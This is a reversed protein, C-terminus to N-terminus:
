RYLCKGMSHEGIYNGNDVVIKGSKITMVPWGQLNKGEYISFDSRTSLETAKVQKLINMDVIVVDADSGPLLTGKQPYLGFIEAPKKTVKGILQELRLGRKVIGENLLVSLHTQLVSYGPVATWVDEDIKKESKTMTVNDTGISDVVDDEIAKWLADVDESDRFPPEMKIANSNSSHKTVSLYPSTTEINIYKNYPKINRLRNIASKSSIHVFYVPVQSKEALYSLRIVAEEEAIDPHTDTWDQVTADKGKTDRVIKNARQVLYRNEAHACVICNKNSKKIEDFVDLIFGDDVDPVIGPIGNMYIKFSTVGLDDICDTIERRQEESAIVLHPVIDTYSYEGIKEIVQPFTKLHSDKSAYFCGMTTIGGMLAAKTETSLEEELPAFLGLHVHPDIIGPMVYKNTADIISNARINENKGISYIKGDKIYLDMSFVGNDPIVVLGNKIALDVSITPELKPQLPISSSPIPQPVSLGDLKNSIEKLMNIKDREYRSDNFTDNYQNDKSIKKDKLKEIYDSFIDRGM